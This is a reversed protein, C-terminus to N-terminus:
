GKAVRGSSGASNGEEDDPEVVVIDGVEVDDNVVDDDVIGEDEDAEM